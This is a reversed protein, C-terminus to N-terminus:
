IEAIEQHLRNRITNEKEFEKNAIRLICNSFLCILFVLIGIVVLVCALILVTNM